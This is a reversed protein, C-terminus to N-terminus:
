SPRAPSANHMDQNLLYLNNMRFTMGEPWLLLDHTKTEDGDTDDEDAITNGAAAGLFLPGPKINDGELRLGLGDRLVLERLVNADPGCICQDCFRQAEEDRYGLPMAQLAMFAQAHTRLKEIAVDFAHPLNRLPLVPKGSLNDLHAEMQNLLAIAAERTLFLQAGAHLDHWHVETIHAPRQQWSTHSKDSVRLAEVWALTATRRATDEAPEQSGGRHLQERLLQVARPPLAELPSLAQTLTATKIQSEKGLVWQVLHDTVTRNRPRWDRTAAKIFDEGVQTCRFANFRTHGSEVFGLAPLPQVSATRMPQSVYFHHQRVYQFQFNTSDKLKTIGRLRPDGQWENSNFALWCALAEIANTVEINSAKAGQERAQKAVAVGLTALLLQKGFWVSGMGPVACQNFARLSAGLGLSRIRRTKALFEPGLLGWSMGM